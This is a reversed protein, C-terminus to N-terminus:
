MVQFSAIIKLTESSIEPVADNPFQNHESIKYLKGNEVHVASVVKGYIPTNGDHDVVLYEAVVAANSNSSIGTLLIGEYGSSLASGKPQAELWESTSKYTTNEVVVGFESLDQSDKIGFIVKGASEQIDNYILPYELSFGLQQNTYTKADQNDCVVTSPQMRKDYLIGGIIALALICIAVFSIFLKKYNKM